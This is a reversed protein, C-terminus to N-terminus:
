KVPVTQNSSLGADDNNVMHALVKGEKKLYAGTGEQTKELTIKDGAKLNGEQVVNLPVEMKVEKNDPAKATIHATKQKKNETVSGIILNLPLLVPSLIIGSVLASSGVSVVASSAAYWGSASMEESHSVHSFAFYMLAVTLTKKHM